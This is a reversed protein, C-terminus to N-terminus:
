EITEIRCFVAMNHPPVAIRAADFKDFRLWALATSFYSVRIPPPDARLGGAAIRLETIPPPWNRL